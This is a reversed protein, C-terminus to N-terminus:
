DVLFLDRINEHVKSTKSEVAHKTMHGVSQRAISEMGTTSESEGERVEIEDGSEKVSLKKAEMAEEFGEDELMDRMTEKADEWAGQYDGEKLKEEIGDVGNAFVATDPMDSSKLGLKKLLASDVMKIAAKRHGHEEIWKKVQEVGKDTLAEDLEALIAKMKEMPKVSEDADEDNDEDSMLELGLHKALENYVAVEKRKKLFEAIMNLANINQKELSKGNMINKFQEAVAGGYRSRIIDEYDQTDGDLLMHITTGEEDEDNQYEKVAKGEAIKKVKLYSFSGWPGSHKSEKTASQAAPTDAKAPEKDEMKCIYNKVADYNISTAGADKAADLILQQAQEKTGKSVEEGVENGATKKLVVLENGIDKIYFLAEGSTFLYTEKAEPTQEAQETPPTQTAPAPTTAQVPPVNTPTTTLVEQKTDDEHMFEFIKSLM